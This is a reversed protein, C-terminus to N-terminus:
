TVVVVSQFVDYCFLCDACNQEYWIVKKELMKIFNSLVWYIWVTSYLYNLNKKQYKCIIVGKM